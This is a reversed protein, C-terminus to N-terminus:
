LDRKVAFQNGHAVDVDLAEDERLNAKIQSELMNYEFENQKVLEKHQGTNELFAELFGKM